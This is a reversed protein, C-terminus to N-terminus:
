SDARSRNAEFLRQECSSSWGVRADFYQEARRELSTSAVLGTVCGVDPRRRFGRLIANVWLRDVRVDDDTYAIFEGRAEGLGRNRAASLGPRTERVYRIRGDERARALVQEMTSDDAPANDVILIELNLYRLRQISHLCRLLGQPRNRTCVIVTVLSGDTDETWS